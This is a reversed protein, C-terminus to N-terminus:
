KGAEQKKAAVVGTKSEEDLKKKEEPTVEILYAGAAKESGCLKVLEKYWEDNFEHREITKSKIFLRNDKLTLVKEAEEEEDEKEDELDGDLYKEYAAKQKTTLAEVDEESLGKFYEEVENKSLLDFEKNTKTM